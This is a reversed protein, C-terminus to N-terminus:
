LINDRVFVQQILEYMSNSSGNPANITHSFSLKFLEYTLGLFLLCNAESCTKLGFIYCM